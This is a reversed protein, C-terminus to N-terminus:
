KKARAKGAAQWCERLEGRNIAALETATQWFQDWAKKAAIAEGVNEPAVYLGTSKGEATRFTLYTNPGHRRSPDRRCACSAKGCTRTTSSMGAQIMTEALAALERILKQKKSSLTKVMLLHKLCERRLTLSIICNGVNQM